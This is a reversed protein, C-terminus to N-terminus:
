FIGSLSDKGTAAIQDFTNQADTGMQSLEARMLDGYEAANTEDVTNGLM